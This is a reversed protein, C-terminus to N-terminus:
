IFLVKDWGIIPEKCIPCYSIKQICDRCCFLHRSSCTASCIENKGELCVLCEGSDFSKWPLSHHKNSSNDFEGIYDIVFREFLSERLHIPYINKSTKGVLAYLCPDSSSSDIQYFKPLKVIYYLPTEKLTKAICIIEKGGVASEEKSYYVTLNFAVLQYNWYLDPFRYAIEKAPLAKWDPDFVFYAYEKTADEESLDLLSPCKLHLFSPYLNYRSSIYKQISKLDVVQSYINGCLEVLPDNASKISWYFRKKM